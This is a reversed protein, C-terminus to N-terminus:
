LCHSSSATQWSILFITAYSVLYSGPQSPDRTWGFYRLLLIALIPTGYTALGYCMWRTVLDPDQRLAGGLNGQIADWTIASLSVGLYISLMIAVFFIAIYRLPNACPEDPVMALGFQEADLLANKKTQNKFVLFCAALRCYRRRLVDIKDWVEQFIAQEAVEGRKIPVILGLAAAYDKQLKDWAFSPENFFSFHAGQARNQDLWHRIYCLEAWQRDLSLRDKNFDGIAVRTRPDGAVDVQADPPVLLQDRTKVMLENAFQPISVCGHVVRRLVFLPNWDIKITLLRFLVAASIIVVLPYHYSGDGMWKQIPEKWEPAVVGILPELDSYFYAILSYILLCAAVYVIVGQRYQNPQTM